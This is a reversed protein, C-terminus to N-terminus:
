RVVVVPCHSHHACAESVSGLLMGKIGGRGRTGVVLLEAGESAEVLARAPQSERVEAKAVVGADLQAVRQVADAVVDAAAQVFGDSQPATYGALTPYSWSHVVHVVSDRLRAEAVAWELARWAGPSGDVGVVIRREPAPAEAGEGNTATM